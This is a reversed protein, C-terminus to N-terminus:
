SGGFTRRPMASDTFTLTLDQGGDALIRSGAATKNALTTSVVATLMAVTAPTNTTSNAPVLVPQLYLTFSQVFNSMTTTVAAGSGTKRSMYVTRSPANFWWTILVPNSPSATPDVSDAHTKALQIGVTGSGGGTAPGSLPSGPVIQSAFQTKENNFTTANPDYPGASDAMRIDTILRYMLDRGADLLQGRQQADKYSNFSGRFAVAVATLLMSSITLCALVEILALARARHPRSRPPLAGARLIRQSPSLTVVHSPIM